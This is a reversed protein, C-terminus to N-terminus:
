EKRYCTVKPSMVAKSSNNMESLGHYAIEGSGESLLMELAELKEDRDTAHTGINAVAKLVSEKGNFYKRELVPRIKSM